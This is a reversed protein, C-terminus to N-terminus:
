DLGVNHYEDVISGVGIQQLGSAFLEHIFYLFGCRLSEEILESVMDANLQLHLATSSANKVAIPVLCTTGKYKANKLSSM